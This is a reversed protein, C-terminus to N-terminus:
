LTVSFTGNSEGTFAIQVAQNRAAADIDITAIRTTITLTPGAGGTAFAISTSDGVAQGEAADYPGSYSVSASTIGFVNEQYGSSTFNTTDVVEGKFSVKFNAHPRASAAITVSSARGPLFAM